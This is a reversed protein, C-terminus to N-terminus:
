SSPASFLANASPWWSDWNRLILISIFQSVQCTACHENTHLIFQSSTDKSTSSSICRYGLGSTITYQNYVVSCATPWLLSVHFKVQKRLLILQYLKYHCRPTADSHCFVHHLLFFFMFRSIM